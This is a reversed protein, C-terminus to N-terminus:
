SDKMNLPPLDYLQSRIEWTRPGTLSSKLSRKLVAIFLKNQILYPHRNKGKQETWNSARKGMAIVTINRRKNEEWIAMMVLFLSFLSSSFFFFCTTYRGIQTKKPGLLTILFSSRQTSLGRWCSLDELWRQWFFFRKLAFNWFFFLTIKLVSHFIDRESLPRKGSIDRESLLRKGSSTLFTIFFIRKLISYQTDLFFILFVAM